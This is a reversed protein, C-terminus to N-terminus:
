LGTELPKWPAESGPNEMVKEFSYEQAQRETLQHSWPVRRKPDAGPGFNNYEAYFTTKEREPRSWNHWGEPAIHSGLECQLYVVKAHDRWPRGLYVKDIGPAATLKCDKFVYGYRENELTSAATVYSNRKSHIECNEFYCRGPGFIFDTTGEIYCNLYYSRASHGDSGYLGYTYITDQNGLIRCRHFFLGDGRTCLAVAQGIGPQDGPGADNCITLDEFSVFSADVFVSASGTTGIEDSTDPWRKRAANDYVLITNCANKGLIKVAVKSSPIILRERYIGPKILLTKIRGRQYDPLADIAEQVTLFDGRGDKDVVFDYRVLHGAIEPLKIRISDCVIDCNKRAGRPTSHTDDQRGEPIAPCSGPEVWMFYPRSALDGAERIWSLSAAEMDILPTGTEKAVEKMAKPYDGHTNEDLIGRVFRRRALPTLLVPTAGKTRATRIFLRLNEQYAGWAPAYVAPKSSKEDNHGFQIFVYDGARLNAQVKDWLGEDIFSKTSRGNKAYNIVRVRDDVFNEFVMGWGREPNGGSIDKDAMTSDGMLHITFAYSTQPVELALTPGAGNTARLLQPIKAAPVVSYKYPMSVTGRDLPKFKEMFRNGKFQWNRANDAPQFIKKVGKAFFNGEILVESDIRANIAPSSNGACDYYNNLLHVKGFRILPMRAQCGPGWICYAFTIHFNGAGQSPNENSAILNSAQHGYSKESYQFTCWTVSIFDSRSNIDFNGDMGDTFSCHDVWLHNSRSVTLLDSGGVDISGPGVFALNRVIINECGDLGILGSRRYAESPDGTLDLLIQRIRQEREEAVFVGNSLHGGGGQDSLQSVSEEDLLRCIEPTVEFQTRLTAHNVGLLTKNRLGTFGMFGSISFDGRSGDLVIVDYDKVAKLLAARMDGGDSTLVTVSGNSGGTIQYSHEGETSNCTAWGFPGDPITATAANAAVAVVVSVFSLFITRM